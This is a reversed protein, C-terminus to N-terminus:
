SSASRSNHKLKAQRLRSMLVSIKRKHEELDNSHVVIDDMYVFLLVGQLGELVRDMLRQFTAPANKLGFPMRAFEFHGFPTSFATKFADKPNMKIQHFGSALDLITYYKASGVQDFIDTINPLPYADSITKANLGRFDLVLRWRLNGHSDPKKSVIWLPTSVPSKLPRIIGFDLLEQVQRNIEDRLSTHMYVFYTM